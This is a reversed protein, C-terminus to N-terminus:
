DHSDREFCQPLRIRFNAGTLPGDCVEISGHHAEIARRVYYLGWGTSRSGDPRNSYAPDFVQSRKYNAIGSGDDSLILTFFQGDIAGPIAEFEVRIRCRERPRMQVANEIMESLAVGIHHSDLTVQLERPMALEVDILQRHKSQKFLEAILQTLNFPEPRVVIEGVLEPMRAVTANLKALVDLFEANVSQIEKEIPRWREFNLYRTLIWDAPGLLSRFQHAAVAMAKQFGAAINQQRDHDKAKRVADQLFPLQKTLLGLIEVEEQQISEERELTIKGWPKVGDFLPLDIWFCGPKKGLIDAHLDKKVTRYHVGFENTCLGYDPSDPDWQFVRPERRTIACWSNKNTRDYIVNKQFKAINVDPLGLARVGRLVERDGVRDLKYMRVRPFGMSPGLDLLGEFGGADEAAVRIANLLSHFLGLDELHVVGGKVEEKGYMYESKIPAILLQGKFNRNPRELDVMRILNPIAQGPTLYEGMELGLQIPRDKWGPVGLDFLDSAAKNYYQIETTSRVLLIPERITNLATYLMHVRDSQALIAALQTGFLKLDTISSTDPVTDDKKEVHLTGVVEGSAGKIPVVAFAKLEGIERCSPDVLESKRADRIIIAEGTRVVQQQIDIRENPAPEIPYETLKDLPPGEPRCVVGSITKREQDVLCVLVRKFGFQSGILASAARKVVDYPNLLGSGLASVTENLIEAHRRRRDRRSEQEQAEHAIRYAAAFENLLRELLAYRSRSIVPHDEGNEPPFNSAVLVRWGRDSSSNQLVTAIAYRSSEHGLQIVGEQDIASELILRQQRSDRPEIGEPIWKNDHFRWLCFSTFGLISRCWSGFYEELSNVGEAASNRMKEAAAALLPQLDTADGILDMGKVQLAQFRHFCENWDGELGYLIAFRRPTFHRKTFDRMLESQFNFRGKPDLIVFGTFELVGPAGDLSDSRVEKGFLLDELQSWVRRDSEVLDVGSRLLHAWFGEPRLDESARQSFAPDLHDLKEDVSLNGQSRIEMIQSLLVRLLYVNGGSQRFLFKAAEEPDVWHVGGIAQQYDETCSRFENFDYGQLVFQNACNFESNPGHVLDRLDRKGSLVVVARGKVVLTRLKKLITRGRAEPLTDLNSIMLTVPRDDAKMAAQLEQLVDVRRDDILEQSSGDEDREVNCFILPASSRLKLGDCLRRMTYRMGGFRPGLIVCSERRDNVATALTSLLSQGVKMRKFSTM